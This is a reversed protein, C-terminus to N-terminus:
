QTATSKWGAALGCNVMAVHDHDAVPGPETPPGTPPALPARSARAMRMATICRPAITVLDGYLVSVATRAAARAAAQPHGRAVLESEVRAALLEM